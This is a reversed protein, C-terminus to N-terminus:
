ECFEKALSIADDAMRHALPLLDDNGSFAIAQGTRWWDLAKVLHHPEPDFREHKLEDFALSLLRSV